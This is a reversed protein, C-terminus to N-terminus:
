KLAKPHGNVFVRFRVGGGSSFEDNLCSLAQELSMSEMGSSRLGLLIHRAEDIVQEMRNVTQDLAARGPVDAPGQAVAAHIHLKVGLFGQLLTDHLERAIRERELRREGRGLSLERKFQKRDVRRFPKQIFEAAWDFIDRTCAFGLNMVNM